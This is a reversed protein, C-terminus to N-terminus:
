KKASHIAITGFMFREFHVDTFGAASLLGALQEATVFHETSEPLYQYAEPSGSLLRGLVPIVAHMHLWILPTFLTRGPRTTDLVVIRGGAKLLRYQEQLALRLDVVNRLLFGSVVADFAAGAFPLRLADAAVFPLDGSKRGIRMMELTFDAAVVQAQPYQRRAARTLDGTGAGIDLLRSAPGLNALRVVRQRWRLDQGGTMLRNILDYRRAIRTFLDRVYAARERSSPESM